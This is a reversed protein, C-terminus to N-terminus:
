CLQYFTIQIQQDSSEGLAKLLDGLCNTNKTQSIVRETTLRSALPLGTDSFRIGVVAWLGVAEKNPM